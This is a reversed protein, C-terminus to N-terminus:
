SAKERRPATKSSKGTQPSMISAGARTKGLREILRHAPEDQPDQPVLKGEFNFPVEDFDDREIRLSTAVHDKILALWQRQESTFRRGRNEQQALGNAFREEVRESFPVLEREEGLAFHVLSVMDTLLRRTGAGRVRSRDLQEYARWLAEPTWSRQTAEITKALAEIDAFRLPQSWRRSYCGGRGAHKLLRYTATVATFTKGSGM